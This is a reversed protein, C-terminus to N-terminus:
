KKHKTPTREQKGASPRQGLFTNKNRYNSGGYGYSYQRQYPTYNTRGRGGFGYGFHSRMPRHPRFGRRAVDGRQNGGRNMKVKNGAKNADGIDKLRKPLDEGFLDTTIPCNNSCISKFDKHLDPKIQERRFLNINHHGALVLTVADTLDTFEKEPDPMDGGQSAQYLRDAVKAMVTVGKVICKQINQLTSDRKCTEKDVVNWVCDNLRPAVLMTTNEIDLVSNRLESTPKEPYGGTALADIAEAWEKHIPKDKRTTLGCGQRLAALRQIAQSGTGSASAKHVPPSTDEEDEVEGEDSLSHDPVTNPKDINDGDHDGQSPDDQYDMDAWDALQHEIAGQSDRLEKIDGKMNDVKAGVTGIISTLGAISKQLAALETVAGQGPTPPKGRTPDADAVASKAKQKTEFNLIDVKKPDLQAQGRSSQSSKGKNPGLNQSTGGNASGSASGHTKAIEAMIKDLPGKQNSM